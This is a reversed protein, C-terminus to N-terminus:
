IGKLDEEVMEKVLEKFTYRPAWGLEKKTRTCDGQLTEVEAPRYYRPDVAVLTDGPKICINSAAKCSDISKAPTNGLHCYSKM